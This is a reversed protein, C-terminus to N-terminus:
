LLGAVHAENDILRYQIYVTLNLYEEGPGCAEQRVSAKEDMILNNNKLLWKNSETELTEVIEKPFDVAYTTQSFIKIQLPHKKVM